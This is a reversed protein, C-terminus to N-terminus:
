TARQLKRSQDLLSLLGLGDFFRKPFAHNMHSAGSNWWPGRGNTASRWAREENLGRHMLNKAPCPSGCASSGATSPQKFPPRGPEEGWLRTQSPMSRKSEGIAFLPQRGVLFGGKGFNM